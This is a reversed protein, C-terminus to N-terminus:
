SRRHSTRGRRRLCGHVRSARGTRLYAVLERRLAGRSEIFLAQCIAEHSIRMSEDDPFDIRLRNSIQEPSWGRVWRRDGRHPKNRGNWAQGPPGITEGDRGKVVGSLRAQVYERLQPNAVLKATKPSQAVLDAKWQAVSTRYELKGCRTAANRHLERSIWPLCGAVLASGGVALLRRYVL